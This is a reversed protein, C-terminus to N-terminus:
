VYNASCELTYASSLRKITIKYQGEELTLVRTLSTWRTESNQMTTGVPFTLTRTAGTVALDIVATHSNTTNSYAVTLNQSVTQGTIDLLDNRNNWNITIVAGSVLNGAEQRTPFPTTDLVTITNSDAYCGIDVLGTSNILLADNNLDFQLYPLRYYDQINATVINGAALAPSNNILHYNDNVSDAFLPNGIINNAGTGTWAAISLSYNVTTVDFLQANGLASNVIQIENLICNRVVLSDANGSSAGGFCAVANDSITCNEVIVDADIVPCIVGGAPNSTITTGSFLSSNIRAFGNNNVYVAGFDATNNLFVCRSLTAAGMTSITVIGTDSLASYLSNSYFKCDEMLVHNDNQGVAGQIFVVGFRSRNNYFVCNSVVGNCARSYFGSLVRTNLQEIDNNEFLCNELVYDGSNLLVVGQNATGNMFKCNTVRLNRFVNGNLYAGAVTNSGGDTFTLQDITLDRSGNVVFVSVTGGDIITPNGENRFERGFETGQFGGYIGVGLKTADITISSTQTYTGERIWIEDYFTAATIAAAITTFANNWSLGDGTGTAALDVYLIRRASQIVPADTLSNYSREGLDALNLNSSDVDIDVEDEATNDVVTIRNSAANINKFELNVGTKQKFVGVGATGENSATNVEGGASAANVTISNADANLTINTGAILSRFRLDAGVKSSFLGEGIGLNSATNDQGGSSMAIPEWISTNTNYIKTSFPSTSTDRWLVDTNTPATASVIVARVNGLNQTAM